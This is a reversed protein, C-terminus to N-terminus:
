STSISSNTLMKNYIERIRYSTKELSFKERSRRRGEMGLRQKLKDDKALLKMADAMEVINKNGVILGTENHDIIEVPGGSNTAIIPRGYYLAELCSMSFSESESFNLVTDANKYEWEVEEVFDIWEIKNDLGLRIADQQLVQKYTTNRTLGMDSGVFRLKWGSIDKCFKSFAVLAHDQGKGPIFNSLYLFTYNKKVKKIESPYKEVLPPRDPICVIKQNVPLQGKLHRSVVIVNEALRLHRQLWFNFIYSPFRNPLFRIHCVYPKRGGMMRYTVALMNYLDNSHIIDIKDHRLLRKFKITNFLLIPLYKLVSSLRRSIEMLPIERIEFCRYNEIWFRAKSNKPLLFVFSYDNRLDYAVNVIAKLAGTIHTSNEIFLIRNKM